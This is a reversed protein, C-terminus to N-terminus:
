VRQRSSVVSKRSFCLFQSERGRLSLSQVCTTSVIWLPASLSAVFNRWALGVELYFPLLSSIITGMSLEFGSLFMRRLHTLFWANEADTPSQYWATLFWVIRRSKNQGYVARSAIPAQMLIIRELTGKSGWGDQQTKVRWMGVNRCCILKEGRYVTEGIWGNGGNKNWTAYGKWNSCITGRLLSLKSRFFGKSCISHQMKWLVWRKRNLKSLVAEIGACHSCCHLMAELISAFNSNM